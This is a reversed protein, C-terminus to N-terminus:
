CVVDDVMVLFREIDLPKRFVQVVNGIGRVKDLEESIEGTLLIIPATSRESLRELLRRGEIGPMHFDVILLDPDGRDDLLQLAAEGNEAALVKFGRKELIKKGILRIDEDDDVFVITRQGATEASMGVKREAARDRFPICITFTTGKQLATEVYIGGDMNEVMTYIIALGLGNGIVPGSTKTTFCPEFIRQVLDERIGTGNDSVKFELFKTHQDTRPRLVPQGTIETSNFCARVSILGNEHEIADKANIILNFLIQVIGSEHARFVLDGPIDSKMELEIHPPVANVLLNRLEDQIASVSTDEEQV